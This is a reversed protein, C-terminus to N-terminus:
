PRRGLASVAGALGRPVFMVVAIFLGAFVLESYERYGALLDPIVVVFIAGLFAGLLSDMGGVALIMVILISFRATYTDPSIFSLYHVNLAGAIGAFMAGLTFMWTKYRAVDVGCAEAGLETSGIARLGLGIRSRMINRSVWVAGLAIAWVLYFYSPPGEFGLPGLRPRPVNIIGTGGGTLWQEQEIIVVVINGFALTAMALYVDRLRLIPAALVWGVLGSLALAAVFGVLVPVGLKIALLASTYAGIGYFAAQALSLQGALGFILSLGLCVIYYIGIFIALNIAFPSSAAVVPFVALALVAAVRWLHPATLAGLVRM